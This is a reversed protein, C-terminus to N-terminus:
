SSGEETSEDPDEKKEESPSKGEQGKGKRIENMERDKAAIRLSYVKSEDKMKKVQTQHKREIEDKEKKVKEVEERLSYSTKEHEMSKDLLSAIATNSDQLRSRLDEMMSKNAKELSSIIMKANGLSERETQIDMVAKGKDSLAKMLENRLTEVEPSRGSL